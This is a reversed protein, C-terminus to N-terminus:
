LVTTLYSRLFDKARSDTMLQGSKPEDGRNEVLYAFVRCVAQKFDPPLCSVDCLDVGVQYSAQLYCHCCWARHGPEIRRSAPRPLREIVSAGSMLLVDSSPVESLKISGDGAVAVQERIQRVPSTWGVFDACRKLATEYFHRLLTDAFAGATAAQLQCLEFLSDDQPNGRTM